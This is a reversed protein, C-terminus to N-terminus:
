RVITLRGTVSEGGEMSVRYLYTGAGLSAGDIEVSQRGEPQPGAEVTQVLRGLVDFVEVTVDASTPLEYRLRTLGSSPNPASGLSRFLGESAGGESSVSLDANPDLYGMISAGNVREGMSWTRTSYSLADDLLADGDFYNISVWISAGDSVDDYGIAALDLMVEMQYGSDIDSADGATSGDKLSVAAILDTGVEVEDPVNNIRAAGTSDVSFDFRLHEAQLSSQTSDRSRIILRFGDRGSEGEIGTSRLTM